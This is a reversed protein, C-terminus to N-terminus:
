KNQACNVTSSGAIREVLSWINLLVDQSDSVLGYMATSGELPLYDISESMEM